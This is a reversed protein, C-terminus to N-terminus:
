RKKGLAHAVGLEYFVNANRNSCDAVVLACRKIMEWVENMVINAGSTSGIDDGRRVTKGCREGAQVAADCVRSFEPAFPMAVFVDVRGVSSIGKFIPQVIYTNEQSLRSLVDVGFGYARM